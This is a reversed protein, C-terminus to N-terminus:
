LSETEEEGEGEGYRGAVRGGRTSGGQGGRSVGVRSGRAVGNAKNYCTKEIHGIIGCWSCVTEKRPCEKSWHDTEGCRFCSESQVQIARGGRNAGARGRGRFSNGGRGRTQYLVEGRMGSSESLADRKLQTTEIDFLRSWMYSIPPAPIMSYFSESLIDYKM